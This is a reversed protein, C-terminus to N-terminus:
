LCNLKCLACQPDESALNVLALLTKLGSKDHSLQLGSQAMFELM